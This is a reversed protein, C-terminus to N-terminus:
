EEDGVPEVTREVGDGGDDEVTELPAPEAAGESEEGNGDDVVENTVVLDAPLEHEVHAPKGNSTPCVADPILRYTTYRRKDGLPLSVVPDRVVDGRVNFGRLFKIGAAVNVEPLAASIEESRSDPHQALYDFVQKAERDLSGRQRPSAKRRAKTKPERKSPTATGPIAGTSSPESTAKQRRTAKPAKPAEPAAMAVPQVGFMKAAETLGRQVGRLVANAAMDEVQELQTRVVDMGSTSVEVSATMRKKNQKKAASSNTKAM